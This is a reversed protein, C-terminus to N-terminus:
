SSQNQCPNNRGIIMVKIVTDPTRSLHIGVREMTLFMEIGCAEPIDLLLDYGVANCKERLRKRVGGQWYLPNRCQRDSWDIDKAKMKAKMTAAHAKLDFKEIIAYWHRCQHAINRFDPRKSICGKELNPCGHPHGPYPSACWKGRAFPEYVFTKIPLIDEGLKPMM